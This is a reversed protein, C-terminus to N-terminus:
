DGFDRLRVKIMTTMGTDFKLIDSYMSWDRSDLQPNGDVKCVKRFKNSTLTVPHIFTFRKYKGSLISIAERLPDVSQQGSILWDFCGNVYHHVTKMARLCYGQVM